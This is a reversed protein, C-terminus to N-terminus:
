NVIKPLIKKALIEVIDDSYNLTLSSGNLKRKVINVVGLVNFAFIGFHNLKRRDELTTNRFFNTVITKTDM